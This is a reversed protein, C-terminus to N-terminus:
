ELKESPPSAGVYKFKDYPSFGSILVLFMYFTPLQPKGWDKAPSFLIQSAESYVPEGRPNQHTRPGLQAPSPTRLLLQMPTQM